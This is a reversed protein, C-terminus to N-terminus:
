LGRHDALIARPVEGVMSPLTRPGVGLHAVLPFLFLIM